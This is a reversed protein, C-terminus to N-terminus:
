FSLFPLVAACLLGTIFEVSTKWNLAHDAGKGAVGLTVAWLLAPSAVGTIWAAPQMEQQSQRQSRLTLWVFPSIYHTFVFSAATRAFRSPGDRYQTAKIESGDYSAYLVSTGLFLFVSAATGADLAWNLGTGRYIAFLLTMCVNSCSTFYSLLTEVDDNIVVQVLDTALAAFYLIPAVAGLSKSDLVLSCFAAITGVLVAVDTLVQGGRFSLYNSLTIVLSVIILFSWTRRVESANLARQDHVNSKAVRAKERRTHCTLYLVFFALSSNWLGASCSNNYAFRRAANESACTAPTASEDCLWIKSHLHKQQDSTALTSAFAAAVQAVTTLRLHSTLSEDDCLLGDYFVGCLATLVGVVGGFTMSVVTAASCHASFPIPPSIWIPAMTTSGVDKVRDAHCGAIAVVRLNACFLLAFCFRVASQLAVSRECYQSRRMTWASARFSLLVHASVCVFTFLVDAVRAASNQKHEGAFATVVLALTNFIRLPEFLVTKVPPASILFICIIGSLRFSCPGSGTSARINPGFPDIASMADLLISSCAIFVGCAIHREDSQEM